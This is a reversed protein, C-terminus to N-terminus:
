LGPHDPINEEHKMRKLHERVIRAYDRQEQERNVAGTSARHIRRELTVCDLMSSPLGSERFRGLWDVTEGTKLEENFVGVTQFAQKRILSGGPLCGSYARPSFRESSGGAEDTEVSFDRARAFVAMRGKEARLAQLLDRLASPAARDDADLFFIYEYRAQLLAANRAAASGRHALRLVRAGGAEAIAATRDGSGDDAVIIEMPLGQLQPQQKRVSEICEAMYAEADFAPILVSIGEEGSGREKQLQLNRRIVQFAKAISEASPGSESDKTLNKGHLRRLLLRDELFGSHIGLYGLRSTWETDEGHRFSEDFDGCRLMVSRTFLATPLCTRNKAAFLINQRVWKEDPSVGDELFNEYGTFVIECDPHERLYKLQLALKDKKWLDDADLFAIYDGSAERLARNRAAAVGSHAQFVRRVMPFARLLGATEDTSGDDVLVIELEESCTQALVSEICARLFRGYNYSVILVSIRAM